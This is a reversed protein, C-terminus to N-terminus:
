ILKIALTMSSSNYPPHGHNKAAVVTVWATIEAYICFVFLNDVASFFTGAARYAAIEMFVLLVLVDGEATTKAIIEM